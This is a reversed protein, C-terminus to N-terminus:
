ILCLILLMSLSSSESNVCGDKFFYVSGFSESNVCGDKFFYVSGFFCFVFFFVYVCLLIVAADRRVSNHGLRPRATDLYRKRFSFSRDLKTSVGVRKVKDPGGFLQGLAM